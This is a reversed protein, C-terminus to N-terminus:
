AVWFYLYDAVGAVYGQGDSNPRHQDSLDSLEGETIQGEACQECLDIMTIPGPDTMLPRLRRGIEALFRYFKRAPLDDSYWNYDDYRAPNEVFEWPENSVQVGGGGFSQM